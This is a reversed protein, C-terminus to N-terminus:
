NGAVESRRELLLTDRWIGNLKAIRRRRGVERFSCSLHLSISATNEPFVSAQLTWIGVQESEKILAELLLRGIGRGRASEGVYVSVETVGAYVSRASVRSLAAWGFVDKGTFAVLRPAPLHVSTWHEWTPAEREFTAQGTAIGELYISRVVNWDADTM